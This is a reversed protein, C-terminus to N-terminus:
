ISYPNSRRLLLALGTGTILGAMMGTLLLGPFLTLGTSWGVISIVIWWLGWQVEHRLLLWQAIGISAGLVMGSFFYLENPILTFDILWGVGWGLGSVLIWRWATHIRRLLVLWQFIGVFLGVTIRGVGPFLLEGVLWGWTTAMLWYFWLAWDFTNREKGSLDVEDIWPHEM